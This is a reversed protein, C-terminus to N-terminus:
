IEASKKLIIRAKGCRVCLEKDAHVVEVVLSLKKDLPADLPVVYKILSYGGPYALQPSVCWHKQIREDSKITLNIKLETNEAYRQITGREFTLNCEHAGPYKHAVAFEIPLGAVAVDIESSALPFYLDKPPFMFMILRSLFTGGHRALYVRVINAGLLAGLFVLSVILWFATLYITTTM